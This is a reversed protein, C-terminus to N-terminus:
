QTNSCSAALDFPEPSLLGPSPYYDELIGYSAGFFFIAAEQNVESLFTFLENVLEKKLVTFGKQNFKLQLHIKLEM